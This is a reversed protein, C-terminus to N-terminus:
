VDCSKRLEVIEKLTLETLQKIKEDQFGDKILKIAINKVTEKNAAKGQEIGQEIGKEIGRKEVEALEQEKLTNLLRTLTPSLIEKEAQMGQEGDKRNTKIFEHDLRERYERPLQLLYDIFYFLAIIYTRPKKEHQSYTRLIQIM